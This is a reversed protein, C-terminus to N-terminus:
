TPPTTRPRSGPSCTAPAALCVAANVNLNFSQVDDSGVGNAATFTIPYNAATGSAPTGGLVRTGMDFM